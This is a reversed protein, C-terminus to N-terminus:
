CYRVFLLLPVRVCLLPVTDASSTNIPAFLLLPSFLLCYFFSFDVVDFDTVVIVDFSVFTAFFLLSM